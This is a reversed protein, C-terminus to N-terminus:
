DASLCSIARITEEAKPAVASSACSYNDITAFIIL